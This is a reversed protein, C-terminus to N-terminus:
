SKIAHRIRGLLVNLFHGRSLFGLVPPRREGLQEALARLETHERDIALGRRVAEMARRRDGALVLTRALNLQNDPQYFELKVAHDCLRLGERVQRRRHALGYGLYSFGHSSLRVGEAACRALLSVGRDWDGTRCLAIGRAEDDASEGRLLNPEIVRAVNYVM